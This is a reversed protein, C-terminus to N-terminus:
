LLMIRYIGLAFSTVGLILMFLAFWWTAGFRKKLKLVSYDGIQSAIELICDHNKHIGKRIRFIAFGVLSSMFGFLILAWWDPWGLDDTALGLVAGGAPLAITPLQWRLRDFHRFVEYKQRYIELAIEREGARLLKNPEIIM